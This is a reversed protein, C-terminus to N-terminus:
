ALAGRVFFMTVAFLLSSFFVAALLCTAFHDRLLILLNPDASQPASRQVPEATEGRSLAERHADPSQRRARERWREWDERAAPRSLEGITRTRFALMQWVILVIMAVYAVLWLLSVYRLPSSSM